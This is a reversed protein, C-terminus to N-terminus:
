VSNTHFTRLSHEWLPVLYWILSYEIQYIYGTSKKGRRKQRATRDYQGWKSTLSGMQHSSPRVVKILSDVLQPKGPNGWSYPSRHVAGHIMENDNKNKASLRSHRSVRPFRCKALFASLLKHYRWIASLKEKKKAAAWPEM